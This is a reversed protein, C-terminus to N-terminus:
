YDAAKSLWSLRKMYEEMETQGGTQMNNHLPSKTADIKGSMEWVFSDLAKLAMMHIEQLAPKYTKKTQEYFVLLIAQLVVYYSM